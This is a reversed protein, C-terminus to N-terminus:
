PKRMIQGNIMKMLYYILILVMKGDTMFGNEPTELFAM